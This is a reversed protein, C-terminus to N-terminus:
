STDAALTGSPKVACRRACNKDGALLYPGYNPSEDVFVLYDGNYDSYVWAPGAPKEHRVLTAVHTRRWLTLGQIWLQLTHSIWVMRYRCTHFRRCAAITAKKQSDDELEM